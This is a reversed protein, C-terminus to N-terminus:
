NRMNRKTQMCFTNWKTAIPFYCPERLSHDDYYDLLQSKSSFDRIICLICSHLNKQLTSRLLNIAGNAECADYQWQLFCLIKPVSTKYNAM